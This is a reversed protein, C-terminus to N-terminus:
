SGSGLTTPSGDVLVIPAGWRCGFECLSTLGPSDKDPMGIDSTDRSTVWPELLSNAEVGGDFVAIRLEPDDPGDLPLQIDIDPVARAVTDIPKLHRLRPMPRAVRLFSFDGLAEIQTRPALTPIFCLSGVGLRRDLDADLGLETTYSEFAEIVFGYATNGAAHLVVELPVEEPLDSPLRLREYNPPLRFQEVVVIGEESRSLDVTEEALHNVWAGLDSRTSAVFLETTAKEESGQRAEYKREGDPGPYSHMTSDPTLATPRSGISEFGVARLFQGPFQSKSVFAPHLTLISVIQDDPCAM